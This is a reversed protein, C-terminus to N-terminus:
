SSSFFRTSPCPHHGKSTPGGEQAKKSPGSNGHLLSRCCLMEDRGQSKLHQHLGHATPRVPEGASGVWNQLCLCGPMCYLSGPGDAEMETPQRLRLDTREDTSEEPSALHNHSEHFRPLIPAPSSLVMSWKHEVGEDTGKSFPPDFLRQRCSAEHNGFGHPPQTGGRKSWDTSTTWRSPFRGRWEGPRELTTYHPTAYRPLTSLALTTEVLGQRRHQPRHNTRRQIENEVGRGNSAALRSNSRGPVPIDHRPTTHSQHIAAISGQDGSGQVTTGYYTVPTDQPPSPGAPLCADQNLASHVSPVPMCAIFARLLTLPSTFICMKAEGRTMEHSGCRLAVCLVLLVIVHRLSRRATAISADVDSRANNTVVDIISMESVFLATSEVGIESAGIRCSSVYTTMTEDGLQPTTVARQQSARRKSRMKMWDKLSGM